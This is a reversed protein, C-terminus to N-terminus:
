GCSVKRFSTPDENHIQTFARSFHSRSAFGVSGAIAKIPLTTSKLLREATTMRVQHLFQSPTESFIRQFKQSLCVPTMGAIEALSELSHRLSPEGIMANVVSAVQYDVITLYLPSRVDSRHIVQRFILLLIQKMYSEVVSRGGIAPRAFETLIGEFMHSFRNDGQEALPEVLHDFLGLGPGIGASVTACALRLSPEDHSTQYRVIGNGLICGEDIPIEKVTEGRGTLRKPFNRPIIAIMGQKLAIQGGNWEISGEGEMVFHVVFEDISGVTLAYGEGIDCIALAKVEVALFSLLTEARPHALIPCGEDLGILDPEGAEFTLSTPSGDAPDSLM